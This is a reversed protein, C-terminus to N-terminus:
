PTEEELEDERWIRVTSHLAGPVVQIHGRKDKYREAEARPCVWRPGRKRLTAGRGFPKMETGCVPCKPM